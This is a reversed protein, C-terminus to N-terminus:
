KHAYKLEVHINLHSSANVNCLSLLSEPAAALDLQGECLKVHVISLGSLHCGVRTTLFLLQLM